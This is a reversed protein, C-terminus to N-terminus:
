EGGPVEIKMPENGKAMSRRGNPCGARGAGFSMAIFVKVSIEAKARSVIPSAAQAPDALEEM